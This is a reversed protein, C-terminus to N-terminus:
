PAVQAVGGIRLTASISNCMTPQVTTPPTSLYHDYFQERSADLDGELVHDLFLAATNADLAVGLRGHSFGAPAITMRVMTDALLGPAGLAALSLPITGLTGSVCGDDSLNLIHAHEELGALVTVNACNEASNADIVFRIETPPIERLCDDDDFICRGAPRLCDDEATCSKGDNDGGSCTGSDSSDTMGCLAESFARNLISLDAGGVGALVSPIGALGNDVGDLGEPGVLLGAPCVQGDCSDLNYGVHCDGEIEMFTLRYTARNGTKTCASPNALSEMGDCANAQDPVEPQCCPEQPEIPVSECRDLTEYCEVPVLGPGGVGGTGRGGVGGSGGSGGGGDSDGCGVLPVVGLAFVGFFGFLCRM